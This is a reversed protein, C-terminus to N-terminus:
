RQMSGILRELSMRDLSMGQEVAAAHWVRYWRTAEAVDPAADPAPIQALVNPDYTRALALAVDPSGDTAVALLQRRAAQIRGSNMLAAASELAAKISAQKAAQSASGAKAVSTTNPGATSAEKTSAEKTAEKTSIDKAATTKPAGTPVSTAQETWNSFALLVAVIAATTVIFIGTLGIWLGRRPKPGAPPFDGPKSEAPLGQLRHLVARVESLKPHERGSQDM